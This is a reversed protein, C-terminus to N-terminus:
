KLYSSIDPEKRFELREGTVPHKFALYSAQLFFDQASKYGHDLQPDYLKDGYLPHGAVKAHLRVQHRRATNATAKVLSFDKEEFYQQLEYITHSPLARESDAPEEKYFRMKTGSRYPSGIYGKIELKEPSLKGQMLCYYYKDIQGDKLDAFLKEWCEQNRAAIILGRTEYDLRQILGCDNESKGVGAQAPYFTKLWFALSNNASKESIVSHCNPRKDLVFIYDDQYLIQPELHSYPM